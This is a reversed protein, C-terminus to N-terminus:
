PESPVPGGVHRIEIGQAYRAGALLFGSVFQSSASTDLSISGGPLDTRGTM